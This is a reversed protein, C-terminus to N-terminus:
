LVNYLCPQKEDQEMGGEERNRRTSRPRRGSAGRERWGQEKARVKHWLMVDEGGGAGARSRVWLSVVGRGWLAPQSVNVWAWKPTNLPVSSIISNLGKIACLDM